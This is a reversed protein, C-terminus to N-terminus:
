NSFVKDTYEKGYKKEFAKRAREAAKGINDLERKIVPDSSQLKQLTKSARKNIIATLAKTLFENIKQETLKNKM